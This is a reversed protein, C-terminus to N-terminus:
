KDGTRTYIKMLAGWYIAGADGIGRLGGAMGFGGARRINRRLSSSHYSRFPRESGHRSVESGYWMRTESIMSCCVCTSRTSGFYASHISFYGDNADSAEAGSGSTVAVHYGSPYLM